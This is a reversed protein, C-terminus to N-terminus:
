SCTVTARDLDYPIGGAPAPLILREILLENGEGIRETRFAHDDPRSVGDRTVRCEASGAADGANAVVLGLVLGGAGDQERALVEVTYPGGPSVLFRALVLFLFFGLLVGVLITAHMQTASPGRIRGPNHEPCLAVGAPTVTGCRVCRDHPGAGEAPVLVPRSRTM